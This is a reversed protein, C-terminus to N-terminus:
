PRKAHKKKKRARKVRRVKRENDHHMRHCNACLPVCKELEKYAKKFQGLSILRFISNEKANPDVHHFDIAAPHSFGCVTCSLTKKFEDWKDRNVAYAAKARAKVTAKNKLYYKRSARAAAAKRKEPDKYPM